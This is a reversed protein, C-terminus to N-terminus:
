KILKTSIWWGELWISREKITFQDIGKQNIIKKDSESNIFFYSYAYWLIVMIVYQCEWEVENINYNYVM